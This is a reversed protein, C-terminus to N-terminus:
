WSFTSTVLLPPLATFLQCTVSGKLSAGCTVPLQFTLRLVDPLVTVALLMLQFPLRCGPWLVLKPNWPLWSPLKTSGAQTPLPPDDDLLELELLLEDLEDEDDLELEDLELLLEELLELEDPELLLEDLEDDLELEELEDDLELLEELEDEDLPPPLPSVQVAPLTSVQPLPKTRFPNVTVLLPLEDTSLQDTM